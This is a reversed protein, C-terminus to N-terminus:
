VNEYQDFLGKYEEYIDDYRKDPIKGPELDAWPKDPNAAKM